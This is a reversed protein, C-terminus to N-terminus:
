KRRLYESGFGASAPTTLIIRTMSEASQDEVDFTKLDESSGREQQQSCSSTALVVAALGMAIRKM